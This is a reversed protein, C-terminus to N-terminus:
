SGCADMFSLAIEFESSDTIKKALPKEINEVVPIPENIHTAEPISSLVDDELQIVIPQTNQQITIPISSLTTMSRTFRRVGTTNPKKLKPEIQDVCVLNITIGQISERFVKDLIPNRHVM